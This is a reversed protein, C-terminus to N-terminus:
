CDSQIQADMVSLPRHDKYPIDITKDTRVGCPFSVAPYDLVNFVCSYGSYAFKGNEVGSYPTAPGTLDCLICNTLYRLFFVTETLHCSIYMCLLADIGATNWRDLYSKCLTNRHRQAQWLDYVSMEEAEQNVRMEPRFPEGTPELLKRVSTGGDALLLNRVLLLIEMHESPQWDVIEHHAAKLKTVTEKLARAVPPTPTIFGDDWLVAIKLVKEKTKETSRWPIPVSSPDRIWPQQSVITRCWFIVEDLTKAIPGCVGRIAEQGELCARSQSNPFRGHSPRITFLGTCAAPM